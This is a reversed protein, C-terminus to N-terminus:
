VTQTSTIITSRQRRCQEPRVWVRFVQSLLRGIASLDPNVNVGPIGVKDAINSGQLESVNRINLRSFGARFEYVLTPSITHTESLVAQEASTKNNGPYTPGAGLAPAPLYSPNYATLLSQSFRAFFLDRDSFRHDVRLDYQNVDLARSPNYLYNNTIGPLNPDPYLNMLNRGANNFRAAPIQNGAFADRITSGGVGRTTTPDYLAFPLAAFNGQKFAPTPVTSLFTQAQRNRTGQYDM